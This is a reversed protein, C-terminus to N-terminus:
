SSSSQVAELAALGGLALFAVTLVLGILMWVFQARAWNQRSPSAGGGFALVLLYILGVLPISALFIALVWSGVSDAPNSAQTPGAYPAPQVPHYSM